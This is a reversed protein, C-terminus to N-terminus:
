NPGKWTDAIRGSFISLIVDADSSVSNYVDRVQDLTLVATINLKVGSKSLKKIIDKTKKGRTNTIPIKAYSNEGWSSIIRAQDEMKNLDDSFVEFSVPKKKVLKLVSIAFKKYNRVGAKKMLSPNTTFGKIFNLRNLKKISNLNAGDAYIDINFKKVM